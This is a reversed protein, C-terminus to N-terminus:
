NGIWTDLFKDETKLHCLSGTFWKKPYIIVKDERNNLYAGWWSFTSNAIICYKLFSMIFMQKYDEISTDISIFTIKPFEEQLTIIKDNVINIDEQEFFYLIKLEEQPLM